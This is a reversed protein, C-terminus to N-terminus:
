SANRSGDPANPKNLIGKLETIADDFKSVQIYIKALMVGIAPDNSLSQTTKLDSIAKDYDNMAVDIESRLQWAAPNTKNNQLYNNITDLAKKTNGQKLIVM